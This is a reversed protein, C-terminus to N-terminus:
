GFVQVAYRGGSKMLRLFLRRGVGRAERKPRGEVELSGLMRCRMRKGGRRAAAPEEQEQEQEQEMANNGAGNEGGMADADVGDIEIVMADGQEVAPAAAAPVAVAPHEVADGGAGLDADLADEFAEDLLAADFHDGGRDELWTDWLCLLAGRGSGSIISNGDGCGVLVTVSRGM